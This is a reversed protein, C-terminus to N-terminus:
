DGRLREVVGGPGGSRLAGDGAHSALAHLKAKHKQMLKPLKDLDVVSWKAGEDLASGWMSISACDIFAALDAAKVTGSAGWKKTCAAAVKDNSSSYEFGEYSLPTALLAAATKPDPTKDKGSYDQLAPKLKLM